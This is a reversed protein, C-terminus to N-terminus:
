ETTNGANDSTYDYSYVNSLAPFVPTDSVKVLLRPNGQLPSVTIDITWTKNLIFYRYFQATGNAYGM